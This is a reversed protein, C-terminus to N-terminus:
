NSSHSRLLQLQEQQRIGYIIEQLISHIVNPPNKMVATLLYVSAEEHSMGLLRGSSAAKCQELLM